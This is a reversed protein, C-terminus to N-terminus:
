GPVFIYHQQVNLGRRLPFADYLSWLSAARVEDGLIGGIGLRHQEVMWRLGDIQYEYMDGNVILTPQGAPSAGDKVPKPASAPMLKTAFPSDREKCHDPM